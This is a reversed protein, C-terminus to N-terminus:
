GMPSALAQQLTVPLGALQQTPDCVERLDPGVVVECGTGSLLGQMRHRLRWAVAQEATMNHTGLVQLQPPLGQEIWGELWQVMTGGTDSDIDGLALLHLVQLQQLDGLWGCGAQLVGGAVSLWRLGTMRSIGDALAHYPAADQWSVVVASLRTVRTLASLQKAEAMSFRDLALDLSRLNKISAVTGLAAAVCEPPVSSDSLGMDSLHPHQALATPVGSDGAHRVSLLAERLNKMRSLVQQLDATERQSWATVLQPQVELVEAPAWTQHLELQQLCPPLRASFPKSNAGASAWNALQLFTPQTLHSLDPLPSCNPADWSLRELSLPLLGAVAASSGATAEFGLHALYLRQLQTAQALPALAEQVLAGVDKYRYYEEEEELDLVLQLTHINPLGALLKGAMPLHLGTEVVRLTHLALPVGAAQAAAAANALAELVLHVGNSCFNSCFYSGFTAAEL